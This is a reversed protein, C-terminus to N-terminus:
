KSTVKKRKLLKRAEEQIDEYTAEVVISEIPTSSSKKELRRKAALFFGTLWLEPDEKFLVENDDNVFIDAARAVQQALKCIVEANLKM